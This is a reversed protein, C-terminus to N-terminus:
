PRTQNRRKLRTKSRDQVALDIASRRRTAARKRVGRKLREWFADDAVIWGHRRASEEGVRVAARLKKLKAQRLDHYDELLSLAHDVASALSKYHRKRVLRRLLREHDRRLPITNM